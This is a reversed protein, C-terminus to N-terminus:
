TPSQDKGLAVDAKSVSDILTPLAARPLNEPSTRKVQDKAQQPCVIAVFATLFQTLVLLVQLL